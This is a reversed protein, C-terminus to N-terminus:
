AKTKASYWSLDKIKIGKAKEAWDIFEKWMKESYIPDGHFSPMKTTTVPAEIGKIRSFVENWELPYNNYFFGDVGYMLDDVNINNIQSLKKYTNGIEQAQSM